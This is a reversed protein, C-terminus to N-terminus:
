VIGVQYMKFFGQILRSTETDAQEVIYFAVGARQTTKINRYYLKPQGTRKKRADYCFAYKKILNM